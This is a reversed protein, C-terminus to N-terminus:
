EGIPSSEASADPTMMRVVYAREAGAARRLYVVFSPPGAYIWQEWVQGATVTRQVRDPQRLSRLVQEDSDGPLIRGRPRATTSEASTRHWSGAFERYGLRALGQVADSLNPVLALAEIWLEAAQSENRTLELYDAALACRQQADGKELQQRQADLWNLVVQEGRQAEGLDSWGKALALARVRSLKAVQKEDRELGRRRLQTALGPVDPLTREAEEALASFDAGPKRGAQELRRVVLDCWLCRHLWTRQAHKAADYVAQRDLRYAPWDAQRAADTAVEAGPLNALAEAELRSLDADDRAQRLEAVLAAHRLCEVQDTAGGAEKLEIAMQRLRASDGDAIAGQIEWATATALLQDVQQQLEKDGYWAAREGAWAALGRLAQYDGEKVNKRRRDLQEADSAVSGWSDVLFRWGSGARELKGSLDVQKMASRPNAAGPSLTFEIKSGELRLKRGTASGFRGTVKIPKGEYEAPNAELAHVEIAGPQSQQAISQPQQAASLKALLLLSALLGGVVIRLGNM